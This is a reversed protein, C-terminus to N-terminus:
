SSESDLHTFLADISGGGKRIISTYNDRLLQGLWMNQVNVDTVKDDSIRWVIRKASRGGLFELRSIVQGSRCEIARINSGKFKRAFDALTTSVYRATLDVLEAQREPQLQSRYKGLAFRTIQDMDTYDALASAFAQPSADRAASLFAAGASDAVSAEQCAAHAQQTGALGLFLAVCWALALTRTQGRHMM